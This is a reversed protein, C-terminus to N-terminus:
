QTTRSLKLLKNLIVRIINKQDTNTNEDALTENFINIFEDNPLIILEGKNKMEGLISAQIKLLNSAANNIKVTEDTKIKEIEVKSVLNDPVISNIATLREDLAAFCRNIRDLTTSEVSARKLKGIYEVKQLENITRNYHYKIHNEVVNEDLDFEKAVEALRKNENKNELWKQEIEKRNVNRCIQCTPEHFVGNENLNILQLLASDVDGSSKINISKMKSITLDPKPVTLEDSM